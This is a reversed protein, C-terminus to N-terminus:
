VDFTTTTWGDAVKSEKMVRGINYEFEAYKQTKTTQPLVHSFYGVIVKMAPSQPVAIKWTEMLGAPQGPFCAMQALVNLYMRGFQLLTVEPADTDSVLRCCFGWAAPSLSEPDGPAPPHGCLYMRFFLAVAHYLDWAARGLVRDRIVLDGLLERMQGLMDEITQEPDPCDRSPKIM